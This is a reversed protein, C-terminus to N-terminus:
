PLEMGPLVPQRKRLEEARVQAVIQYIRTHTVKYQDVLEHLNTGNFRDFIERDRKTLEFEQDKPVYMYGGGHSLCIDHACDRAVEAAREPMMGLETVLRKAILEVTLRVFARVRDRSRHKHGKKAVKM